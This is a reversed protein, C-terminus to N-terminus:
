FLKDISFITVCQMANQVFTTPVLQHSWDHGGGGGGVGITEKYYPLLTNFPVSHSFDKMHVTMLQPLLDGNNRIPLLDDNNRKPLLDGNNRIPLLDGNNRIPLLDSRTEKNAFSRRLEM